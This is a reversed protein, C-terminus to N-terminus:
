NTTLKKMAAVASDVSAVAPYCVRDKCLYIRPGDFNLKDKLLPFEGTMNDVGSQLVRNPIYKRLLEKLLPQISEGVVTIENIGYAQFLYSGAWVAFSTPYKQLAEDMAHLMSLGQEAWEHREFVIGLYLFNRALVANAAPTAGDYLEIKRVIIDDQQNDSYYFFRGTDDSFHAKVYDMIESARRLYRQDGTIEQLHLLAEVLYAYDDLFAPQREGNSRYGHYFMGTVTGRFASDVFEFLEIGAAKYVEDGTAAFAKAFATILLANTNLLTKDDLGPPVRQRRATLLVKKSKALSVRLAETSLKNREAVVSVLQRIHLINDGEWNGGETVGYYDCFLAADASGLLEVIEDKTWVYFKGEVGESDADLATYYGGEEGKLDSMVFALTANIGDLFEPNGTLQAADCLSSVFLANDYLMKEFHPVLWDDDTSYRSIGGGLQDYIGGRLMKTLTFTAHDISPKHEALHGFALLYNICGTQLFKPAKGFGGENKDAVALITHAMSNCTAKSFHAEGQSIDFISASAFTSSKRLHHVLTDAQKEVEDRKHQFVDHMSQLVDMWSSRNFAKQPPYYTGGFFPKTEPTLFVNLPWGGSGSIAQVADMYLHDLDPREERDIKINVFHKNMFAAVTEDEFSEREMVHCWHCASYGISVLIPLDQEKALKLAEAGWPFWHVPNHAHQKLYPSIEGILANPAYQKM